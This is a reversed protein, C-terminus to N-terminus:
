NLKELLQLFLNKNKDTLVIRGDALKQANYITELIQQGNKKFFLKYQSYLLNWNSFVKDLLVTWEKQTIDWLMDYEIAIKLRAQYFKILTDVAINVFFKRKKNSLNLDVVYFQNLFFLM